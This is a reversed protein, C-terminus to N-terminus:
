LIISTGPWSLPTSQVPLSYLIHTLNWHLWEKKNNKLRLIHISTHLFWRKMPGVVGSRSEQLGQGWSASAPPDCSRMLKLGVLASCHSGGGMEFLCYWCTITKYLSAGFLAFYLFHPLLQCIPSNYLLRLPMCSMPGPPWLAEIKWVYLTSIPVVALSPSVIFTAANYRCINVEPQLLGAKPFWHWSCETSLLSPHSLLVICFSNSLRILPQLCGFTWWCSNPLSFLKCIAM